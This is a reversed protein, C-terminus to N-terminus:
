SIIIIPVNSTKNNRVDKIIDFGSGDKLSIDIMLLSYIDTNVGSYEKLSHIVDVSYGSQELKKAVSTSLIKEDDAFLIRMIYFYYYIIVTINISLVNKELFFFILSGINLILNIGSYCNQLLYKM